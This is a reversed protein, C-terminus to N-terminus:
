ALGLRADVVAGGRVPASRVTRLQSPNQIDCALVARNTPVKRDRCHQTPNDNKKLTIHQKGEGANSHRQRMRRADFVCSPGGDCPAKHRM